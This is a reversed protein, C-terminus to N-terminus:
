VLLWAIFIWFALGIPAAICVGKWIAGDVHTQVAITADLSAPPGDIWLGARSRLAPITAGLLPDRYRTSPAMTPAMFHSAGGARMGGHWGEMAVGKGIHM